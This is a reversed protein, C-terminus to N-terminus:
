VALGIASSGGSPIDEAMEHCHAELYRHFPNQDVAKVFTDGNM